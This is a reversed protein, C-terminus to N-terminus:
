CIADCRGIQADLVLEPRHNQLLRVDFRNSRMRCDKLLNEEKGNSAVAAIADKPMGSLAPSGDRAVFRGLVAESSILVVRSSGRPSLAVLGRM